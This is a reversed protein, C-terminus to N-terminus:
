GPPPGPGTGDGPEAEILVVTGSEAAQVASEAEALTRVGLTVVTSSGSTAPGGVSLLTAGRLVISVAGPASAGSAQPVALLDVPTGARLGAMSDTAVPVSVPRLGAASSRSALMPSEVLEGPAVSVALARGILDEEAGFALRRTSGPLTMSEMALDGPGLVAGAPLPQAAVVYPRGRPRAGAVVASFVIVAAIAILLGGLVV